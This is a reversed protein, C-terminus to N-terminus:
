VGPLGGCDHKSQREIRGLSLYIDGFVFSSLALLPGPQARVRTDEHKKVVRPFHNEKSLDPNGCGRM